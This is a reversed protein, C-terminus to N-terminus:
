INVKIGGSKASKYMAFMTKMTTRVSSLSFYEGKDYISEFLMEHGRGWYMKGIKPKSDEAVVEGNVYLKGDAYRAIGKEFVVEFEPASNDGYANTAFFVARIGGSLRLSAAFTDEVEIEPIAFNIMQARVSEIEGLLYGFYDLTHISQNILVGGGESEWKGRWADQAYYGAGRSWTLIAKATRIKGMKGSDILAKFAEVSPNLRNQFVVCVKEDTDLQCLEDYEEETMTVPKECVVQKGAALAKKAMEFHLYHPTCIHVSDIMKDALMEDFDSYAVVGGHEAICKERREPDIECVAYLRASETKSVAAAHTPGIAGYGVICVNKM